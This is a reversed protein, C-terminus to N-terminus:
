GHLVKLRAEDFEERTILNKEYLTALEIIKREARTESSELSNGARSVRDSGSDLLRSPDDRGGSINFRALGGLLNVEIDRDAFEESALVSKMDRAGARIRRYLVFAFIVVLVAATGLIWPLYDYMGKLLVVTLGIGALLFVHLILILYGAFIGKFLGEKDKKRFKM